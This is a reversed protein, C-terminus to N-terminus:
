SWPDFLEAAQPRAANKIKELQLTLDKVQTSWYDDTGYFPFAVKFAPDEWRKTMWAAFHIMRLSRLPEILTLSRRDFPRMTEYAELLVERDSRAVNDDGPVVLWIDQIAPGVLMDDFDVFFPGRDERYIINGEHCDGHIRHTEIQDFLPASVHCIQEVVDRYLNEYQPPIAKSDLLFDLNKKGFTETTIMARHNSKNAAGVNHMRALLRGLIELLETNMDQPARGGQKPFVCFFLKQNPVEFLTEGNIEIPSIVPVEVDALERLFLHEDRIQEKTWRGPRYFKAIIFHDTSVSSDSEIEIEYVRNEMSNLAFSRGTVEFGLSEIAEFITEPGLQYFFQTEQDGWVYNSMLVTM